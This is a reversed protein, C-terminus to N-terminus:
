FFISEQALVWVQLATVIKFRHQLLSNLSYWCIKLKVCPLCTDPNFNYGYFYGSLTSLFLTSYLYTAFSSKTKLLKVTVKQGGTWYSIHDLLWSLYVTGILSPAKRKQAPLSPIFVWWEAQAKPVPRIEPSLATTRTRSVPHERFACVKLSIPVQQSLTVLDM